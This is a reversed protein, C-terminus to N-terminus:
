ARGAVPREDSLSPAFASSRRGRWRGDPPLSPTRSSPSCRRHARRRAGGRAPQRGLASADRRAADGPTASVCNAAFPVISSQRWTPWCRTAASRAPDSVATAGSRERAELSAQAAAAPAHGAFSPTSRSTCRPSATGVASTPAARAKYSITVLRVAHVAAGAALERAFTLAQLSPETPAGDVLEVYALVTMASCASRRCCRRRGRRCRRPRPRPDGGAKGPGGPRRPAAIECGRARRAPSTSADGAQAARAAPRAGVPLAAPQSGRARTVVAPLPLEYVDRGGAGGARLACRATRSPSARSGPRWPGASRARSGSGSRITGATPPRTASSSSISPHRQGGRRRPDRRRDRRRDGASGVGGRGLRPPHRPRHGLAMADRLQEEAEPPGLTLVVSEGGAAEVLRVAEEVGCEEHPSITFGLHRTEIAQADDTLVIRGGTLPVRKVCVLIRVAGATVPVTM